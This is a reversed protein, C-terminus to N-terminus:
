QQDSVEELGSAYHTPVAVAEERGSTLRFSAPLYQTDDALTLPSNRTDRTTEPDTTLADLTDSVCQAVIPDDCHVGVWVV